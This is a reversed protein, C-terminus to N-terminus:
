TQMRATAKDQNSGGSNSGSWNANFIQQAQDIEGKASQLAAEVDSLDHDIRGYQFALAFFGPSKLKSLQDNAESLLKNGPNLHASVQEYAHANQLKLFDLNGGMQVVQASLDSSLKKAGNLRMAWRANLGSITLFAVVLIVIVVIAAITITGNRQGSDNGLMKDQLATAFAITGDVVNATFATRQANFISTIDGNSLKDTKAGSGGRIDTVVLIGNGLNMQDHLYAAYQTPDTFRPKDNISQSDLVVLKVDYGRGKLRNVADKLKSPVDGQKAAQIENATDPSVYYGDKSLANIVDANFNGSQAHATLSFALLLAYILVLTTAARRALPHAIMM